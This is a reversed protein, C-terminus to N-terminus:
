APRVTCNWQKMSSSIQMMSTVPPMWEATMLYKYQPVRDLADLEHQAWQRKTINASLQYHRVLQMLSKRYEARKGALDEVLDIETADPTGFGTQTVFRAEAPDIRFRPDDKVVPENCGLLFVFSFVWASIILKRAM